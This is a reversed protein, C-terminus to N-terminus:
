FVMRLFVTQLEPNDTAEIPPTTIGLAKGEFEPQVLYGLGRPDIAAVYHGRGTEVFWQFYDRLQEATM